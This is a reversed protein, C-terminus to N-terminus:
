NQAKIAEQTIFVVPVAELHEPWRSAFRITGSPKAEGGELAVDFMRIYAFRSQNLYPLNKEELKWESKWFYYGGPSHACASLALLLVAPIRSTKM